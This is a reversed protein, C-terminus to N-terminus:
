PAIHLSRLSSANQQVRNEKDRCKLDGRGPNTQGSAEERGKLKGKLFWSPQAGQVSLGSFEVEPSERGKELIHYQFELLNGM